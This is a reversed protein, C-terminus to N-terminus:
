WFYSIVQSRKEKKRRKGLTRTREEDADDRQWGSESQWQMRKAMRKVMVMREKGDGDEKQWRWGRKAMVM